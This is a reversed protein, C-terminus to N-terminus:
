KAKQRSELIKKRFEKDFLPLMEDPVDEKTAINKILFFVRKSGADYRTDAYCYRIGYLGMISGAVALVGLGALLARAPTRKLTSAAVVIPLTALIAGAGYLLLAWLPVDGLQGLCADSLVPKPFPDLGTQPQGLLAPLFCVLATWLALTLGYVSSLRGWRVPADTRTLRWFALTLSTLLLAILTASAQRTFTRGKLTTLYSVIPTEKAIDPEARLAAEFAAIAADYRKLMQNNVGLYYLVDARYAYDPFKAAIAELRKVREAASEVSGMHMRAENLADDAPRYFPNDSKFETPAEQPEANTSPEAHAALALAGLLPILLITRFLWM